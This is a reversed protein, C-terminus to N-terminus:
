QDVVDIKLYIVRVDGVAGPGKRLGSSDRSSAGVAAEVRTSNFTPLISQIGMNATLKIPSTIDLSNEVEDEPNSALSPKLSTSNTNHPTSRDDGGLSSRARACIAKKHKVLRLKDSGWGGVWREGRKIWKERYQFSGSRLGDVLWEGTFKNDARPAGGGCFNIQLLSLTVTLM